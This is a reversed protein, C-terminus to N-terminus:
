ETTAESSRIDAIYKNVDSVDSYYTGVAKALQNMADELPLEEYPTVDTITFQELKLSEADWRALGLLGVNTYLRTGLKKAITETTECYITQGSLLEVMAKPEKGGVRVVRGYVTTEGTLRARKEFVIDPTITALVKRHGNRTVLEAVCQRKRSFTVIKDLADVSGAPLNRYDNTTVAEGIGQFIPFVIQQLPSVFQLDVSESKINVFGVIVQERDIEPHDRFVQAEVMDEVAKLIEAIDSAKVSAPKIDTGSFSVEIFRESGARDMNYKGEKKLCTLIGRRSPM